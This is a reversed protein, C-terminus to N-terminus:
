IQIGYGEWPSSLVWDLYAHTELLETEFDTFAIIVGALAATRFMLDRDHAMPSKASQHSISLIGLPQGAPNIVPQSWYANIGHKLALERYPKWLPDEQVNTVFVAERRFAAARCSGEHEAIPLGPLARRYDEPLNPGICEGLAWGGEAIRLVSVM